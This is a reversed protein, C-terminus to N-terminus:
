YTDGSFSHSRVGNMALNVRYVMICYLKDTVQPLDTTEGVLLVSRWSIVSINSFTDNFVMFWVM